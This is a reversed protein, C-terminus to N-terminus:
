AVPCPVKRALGADEAKSNNFGGIFLQPPRELGPWGEDEPWEEEQGEEGSGGDEGSGPRCATNKKENKRFNKGQEGGKGVGGGSRDEEKSNAGEEEGRGVGGSGGM